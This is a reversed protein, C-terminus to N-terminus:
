LVKKKYFDDVASCIYNLDNGNEVAVSLGKM